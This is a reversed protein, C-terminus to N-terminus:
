ALAVYCLDSQQILNEISVQRDALALETLEGSVRQTRRAFESRPM